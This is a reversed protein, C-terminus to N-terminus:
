EYYEGAFDIKGTRLLTHLIVLAEEFRSVRHDYPFGFATYDVISWGAGLGLILRGDSVEEVMDVIKALMTPNRYSTCCVVPGIEVRKTVAALAALTTWCEWQGQSDMFDYHYLMHDLNWLSDFGADEVFRAMQELDRWRATAGGMERETDPLILGVKLPRKHNAVSGSM